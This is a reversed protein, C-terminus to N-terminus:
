KKNPTLLNIVTTHNSRNMENAIKQLTFGKEKMKLVFYRAAEQNPNGKKIRENRINDDFSILFKQEVERKLSSIFLSSKRKHDKLNRRKNKRGTIRNRELCDKSFEGNMARKIAVGAKSLAKKVEGEKTGLHTAISEISPHVGSAVANLANRYMKNVAFLKAYERALDKAAKDAIEIAEAEERTLSDDAINKAADIFKIQNEVTEVESDRLLKLSYHSDNLRSFKVHTFCSAKVKSLGKNRRNELAYLISDHAYDEFTKTQDFEDRRTLKYSYSRVQDYVAELTTDRQNRTSRM